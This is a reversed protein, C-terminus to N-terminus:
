CRPPPVQPRAAMKPGPAAGTPLSLATNRPKSGTGEGGPVGPLFPRELLGRWGWDKRNEQGRQPGPALGPPTGRLHGASSAGGETSLAPLPACSHRDAGQLQLPTSLPLIHSGCGHLASNVKLLFWYDAARQSLKNCLFIRFKELTPLELVSHAAM